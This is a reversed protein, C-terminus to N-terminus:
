QFCELFNKRLTISQLLNQITKLMKIDDLDPYVSIGLTIDKM